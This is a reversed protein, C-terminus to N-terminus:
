KEDWEKIRNDAEKALDVIIQDFSGQWRRTWYDAEKALDVDDRDINKSPVKTIDEENTFFKSAKKAYAASIRPLAIVISPDNEVVSAYKEIADDFLGMREYLVGLLFDKESLEM